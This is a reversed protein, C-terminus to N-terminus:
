RHSVQTCPIEDRDTLPDADGLARRVRALNQALAVDKPARNLAQHYALAADLFQYHGEYWTGLRAFPAAQTPNATCQDQLAKLEQAAAYRERYLAEVRAAETRKGERTLTQILDLYIAANGPQLDVAHMLAKRARPLDGAWVCAVGLQHFAAADQPDLQTAQRAEEVAEQIHNALRPRAILVHALSRHYAAQHPDADIAKRYFEEAKSWQRKTEAYAALERYIRPALGPDLRLAKQLYQIRQPFQKLILYADSIRLADDATGENAALAASLFQAPRGAARYVEAIAGRAAKSWPSGRRGAPPQLLAIAHDYSGQAALAQARCYQAGQTDGAKQWADAALTWAHEPAKELSAARMWYQAAMAWAGLCAMQEAMRYWGKRAMPDLSTTRRWEALADEPKGTRALAVGYLYHADPDQPAVSVAQALIPLADSARGLLMMHRGQELYGDPADPTCATLARAVQVAEPRDQTLDLVDLARRLLPADDSRPHAIAESMHQLASRITREAGQLDGMRALCWAYEAATSANAPDARLSAELQSRAEPLRALALLAKAALRSAEGGTTDGTGLAEIHQLAEMWFGREELVEALRLRVRRDSPRTKLLRTYYAELAEDDLGPPAHPPQDRHLVIWAAIAAGIGLALIASLARRRNVRTSVPSPTKSHPSHMPNHHM